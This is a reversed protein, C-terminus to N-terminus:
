TKPAKFCLNISLSPVMLRMDNHPKHALPEQLFYNMIWEARLMDFPIHKSPEVLEGYISLKPNLFSLCQIFFPRM